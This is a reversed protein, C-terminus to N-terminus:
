NAYKAVMARADEVMQAAPLGKGSMEDIWQAIIPEAAERFRETEADSLRNITNDTEEVLTLGPVDGTDMARGAWAAAEFGSNNDIIAKLDDPMSEYKAKNMGWIFVTNYFARDGGFITHSTALEQVKLPPVIEFPIVGGDVVGKSLSEPFAPVPIGVPTAGLAALLQGAVRNPTRLKLGQMDELKTVQKDRLHIAGPGHVHMAVVHVDSFSETLYKEYFEWLARSSAEANTSSVFPLEFVEAGPFRGPTYGPITWAGDIVGDRMQDYLAPPKGGLQMSPYIEVKIRGNSEAQIKEAWPLIFYRPIAGKNSIFHQMRLTVDQAAASTVAVGSMGVSLAAAAAAGLLTGGLNFKM